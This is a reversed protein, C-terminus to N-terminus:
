SFVYEDLKQRMGVHKSNKALLKLYYLTIFSLIEQITIIKM